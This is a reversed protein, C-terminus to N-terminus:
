IKQNYTLEHLDFKKAVAKWELADWISVVEKNYPPPSAPQELAFWIKGRREMAVRVYESVAFLLIMKWFLLNDEFLKKKEQEIANFIGFEEGGCRRIPRPAEPNGPIPFHRLSTAILLM